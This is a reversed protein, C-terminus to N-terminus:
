SPISRNVHISFRTSNKVLGMLKLGLDWDTSQVQNFLHAAKKLWIAFQGTQCAAWNLASGLKELEIVDLNIAVELRFLKFHSLM